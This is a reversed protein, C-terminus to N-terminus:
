KRFEQRYRGPTVGAMKGFFRIFNQANTYKLLEAIEAVSKDTQTLLEKAREFKYSAVYDSFTTGRETKMIRWLYNPHYNLIEACETLTIDGNHEAVVRKIQEMIESAKRDQAEDILLIVPELVDQRLYQKLRKAEYIQSAASFINSDQGSLAATNLGLESPVLFITMIMRYVYVYNDNGAGYEFMDDVFRDMYNGAAEMDCNEVAEKIKKELGVDYNYIREKKEPTESYFVIKEPFRVKSVVAKRGEKYAKRLEPLRDHLASVGVVLEVRKEEDEGAALFRNLAEFFRQIKINLMIEGDAGLTFVFVGSHVLPPLYMLEVIDDPSNELLRRLTNEAAKEEVPERSGAYRLIAVAAAYFKKEEFRVREINNKLEEDTMEGNVLALAIMRMIQVQQALFLGETQERNSVLMNVQKAINELENERHLFNQGEKREGDGHKGASEADAPEEPLILGEAASINGVHEKLDAVPQYLRNSSWVVVTFLGLAIALVVFTGGWISDVAGWFAKTNSAAYCCIGYIRSDQKSVIYKKGNSLKVTGPIDGDYELLKEALARDSAYLVEKEHMNLIVKEYDTVSSCAKFYPTSPSLKIIILGKCQKGIVPVPVILSLGEYDVYERPVILRVIESGEYRNPNYNWYWLNYEQEAKIRLGHVEGANVIKEYPYMGKNSFVMGEQFNIITFGSVYNSLLTGGHLIDSIEVLKSYQSYSIRSEVFRKISDNEGVSRYYDQIQLFTEDLNSKLQLSATDIGAYAKEYNKSVYIYTAFASMLLVSIFTLAFQYLFIRKRYWSTRRNKEKNKNKSNM